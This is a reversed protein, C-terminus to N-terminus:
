KLLLSEYEKAFKTSTRVDAFLKVAEKIDEPTIASRGSREAIVQLPELLESIYRLSTSTGLNTLEEISEQTLEVDLEEARIKLIERIEEQDYPRTPIILLRDLLDIPIGHPSEVDTGRIKTIGRNTALILIPSLEAELAKTLFSFAEVDLMHADDIFLVGPVLEASNEKLMKSVLKDTQQRVDQNVEGGFLSSLIGFGINQAALNLDIDSLTLTNVIEKEKKVPGSPVEVYKTSEIDYYKVGEVGKARGTKVVDGTEADIWIVDGKKVNYKYLQSAVLDGVQITKQEDKTALTLEAERPVVAMPNARSRAIKVKVDKVVGEYVQRKQRVRIGISKRVAQTLVETKKVETSYIESANIASFPTDEGLEKAIAFALATKGTGSPGVFLIGRGSMKGKRVLEVVIGAAERAQVQGVLGDAVLKAKGKEDLGLGKIHSHISARREVKKVERIEAM